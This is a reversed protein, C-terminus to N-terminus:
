AAENTLGVNEKETVPINLNKCLVKYDVERSGCKKGLVKSNNLDLLFKDFDSSVKEYYRMILRITVDSMKKGYQENYDNYARGMKAVMEVENAKFFKYGKAFESMKYAGKSVGVSLIFYFPIEKHADAFAVIEECVQKHLMAKVKEEHKAGGEKYQALNYKGALRNNAVNRIANEIANKAM